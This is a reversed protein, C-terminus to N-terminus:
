HRSGLDRDVDNGKIFYTLEDCLMIKGQDIQFMAIVKVKIISGDKKVADVIHVTSVKDGDSLMNEFSVKVSKIALKQAKMHAVFQDYNLQKGDVFQRYDKSFYQSIMEEGASTNEIVDRFADQIIQKNNLM